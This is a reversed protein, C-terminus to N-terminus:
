KVPHKIARIAMNGSDALFLNDLFDFVISGSFNNFMAATAPLGDGAYGPDKNGAIKTIIGTKAEIRRIAFNEAIYINDARDVAIGLPQIRAQYAPGGDGSDSLLGNGALRKLYSGNTDSRYIFNKTAILLNNEKDIALGLPLECYDPDP